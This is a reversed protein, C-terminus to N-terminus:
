PEPELKPKGSSNGCAAGGSGGGGGGGDDEINRSQVDCDTHFVKPPEDAAVDQVWWEAGRFQHARVGVRRLAPSTCMSAIAREVGNRPSSTREMPMWYSGALLAVRLAGTLACIFDV